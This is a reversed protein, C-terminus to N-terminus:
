HRLTTLDPCDFKLKQIIVREEALLPALQAHEEIRKKLGYLTPSDAQTLRYGVHEVNFFHTVVGIDAISLADGVLWDRGGLIPEIYAIVEEMLKFATKVKEADHTEGRAWSFFVNGFVGFTCNQAIFTDGYEELWLAQGYDMPDAPYLSPSPQHKEIFAAIASSDALALERGDDEIVLAPIKKLPHIKEYGEPVGLPSVNTDIEYDINKLALIMRVKRVFPSLMAGYLKFKM